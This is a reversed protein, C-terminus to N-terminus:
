FHRFSVRLIDRFVYEKIKSYDRGELCYAERDVSASFLFVCSFNMSALGVAAEKTMTAVVANAVPMSLPSIFNTQCKPTGSDMTSYACDDPLALRSPLANPPGASQQMNM